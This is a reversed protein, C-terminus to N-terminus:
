DQREVLPQLMGQLELVQQLILFSAATQMDNKTCIKVHKPRFPFQHPLRATVAILCDAHQAPLM